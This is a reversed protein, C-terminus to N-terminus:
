PAVAHTRAWALVRCARPRVGYAGMSAPVENPNREEKRPGRPTGSMTGSRADTGRTGRAARVMALLALKILPVM